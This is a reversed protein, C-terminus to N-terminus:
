KAGGTDIPINRLEQTIHELAIQYHAERGIAMAVVLTLLLPLLTILSLIALVILVAWRAYLAATNPRKPQQTM